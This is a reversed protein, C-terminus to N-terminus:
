HLPYHQPVVMDGRTRDGAANWRSGGSGGRLARAGPCWQLVLWCPLDQPGLVRNPHLICAADWPSSSLGGARMEDQAWIHHSSTVGAGSVHTVVAM